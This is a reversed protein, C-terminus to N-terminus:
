GFEKVQATFDSARIFFNVGFSRLPGQASYRKRKAAIVGAFGNEKAGM